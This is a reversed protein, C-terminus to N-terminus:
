DKVSHHYRFRGNPATDGGLLWSVMDSNEPMRDAWKFQIQQLRTKGLASLPIKLALESGELHMKIQASTQWNWEHLHKELTAEGSSNSQKRNIIWDFGEWGTKSDQDVDLLLWLGQLNEQTLPQACKLYFYLYDKSIAARSILIDHRAENNAYRTHNAYGPFDRHRVDGVDDRYEPAIQRWAAFDTLLDTEEAFMNAKFAPRVGKFKRVNSVLQYYYDDGHGGRMPEIDRSHEHDFQDVFMVPLRVGAFEAHRGAIWENWGTVFIHEPDNKLALDFQEQFNLGLRVAGETQDRGGRHFNRGRAGAESLSGLRSGVANQAVGVSMQEKGGFRNTFLHQPYVELWSWMDPKTQGKFYDPQPSRFTFFQKIANWEDEAYTVSLTRDGARASGNNYSEEGAAQDKTHTWWGIKGVPETMELYYKGAPLANSLQLMTWGNDEVKGYQESALVKGGPGDARLTLRMGSNAENWTPFSGGVAVFAKSAQFTQGLVEGSLLQEPLNKATRRTGQQLRDPDALIFPKGDLQFWLDRYLGPEYLERYLEKVVKSPEWFPTLFAVQPTRNGAARVESWVRMLATYQTKYTHQNTVDFVVLDVGADSLMQAHKALVYPDDTNYYGFISEGWHHPAHLPGWLPSDPKQMADPDRSLIKTIDWPGGAQSHPGLWLFYFMAVTKGKRPAGVESNGPLSRGLADTAVWTDSFTDWPRETGKSETACYLLSFLFAARLSFVKSFFM